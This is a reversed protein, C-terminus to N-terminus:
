DVKLRRAINVLERNAKETFAVGSGDIYVEGESLLDWVREMVARRAREDAPDLDLDYALWSKWSDEILASELESYLADDLLPYRSLAELLEQVEACDPRGYTLYGVVVFASPRALLKLLVESETPVWVEEFVLPNYRNIIAQRNAEKILADAVNPADEPATGPSCWEIEEYGLDELIRYVEPM